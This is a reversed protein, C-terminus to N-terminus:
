AEDLFPLNLCALLTHNQIRCPLTLFISSCPQQIFRISHWEISPSMCIVIIRYEYPYLPIRLRMLGPTQHKIHPGKQFYLFWKPASEFLLTLTVVGYTRKFRM